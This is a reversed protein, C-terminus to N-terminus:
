ACKRFICSVAKRSRSSPTRFLDQSRVGSGMYRVPGGPGFFKCLKFVKSKRTSALALLLLGNTWASGPNEGDAWFELERWKKRDGTKKLKEKKKKV